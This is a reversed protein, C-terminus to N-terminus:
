IKFVLGFLIFNGDLGYQNYGYSPNVGYSTYFEPQRKGHYKGNSSVYNQTEGNSNNNTNNNVSNTFNNPYKSHGKKNSYSENYNYYNYNENFDNEQDYNEKNMEGSTSATNGNSSIDNSNENNKGSVIDSWKHSQKSSGNIEEENAPSKNLHKTNNQFSVDAKNSSSKGSSSDNTYKNHKHSNFPRSIATTLNVNKYPAYVNSTLQYANPDAYSHQHDSPIYQIYANMGMGNEYQGARSNSNHHSHENNIPQAPGYSYEVPIMNSYNPYNTYGVNQYAAYQPDYQNIQYSSPIFAPVAQLQGDKNTTWQQPSISSTNQTVSLEMHPHQPQQTTFAQGPLATAAPIYSIYRMTTQGNNAPTNPSIPTSSSGNNAFNNTSITVAKNEVIKNSSSINNNAVPESSNTGEELSAEHTDSKVKNSITESSQNAKEIIFTLYFNIFFHTM